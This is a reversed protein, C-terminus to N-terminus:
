WPNGKGKYHKKGGIRVAEFYVVAVTKCVFVEKKRKNCISKMNERFRADCVNRNTKSNKGYCLDHKDCAPKFIKNWKEAAKKLQKPTSCGNPKAYPQLVIPGLSDSGYYDEILADESIDGDVDVGEDKLTQLAASLESIADRDVTDPEAASAPAGTLAATLVVAILSAVVLRLRHPGFKM